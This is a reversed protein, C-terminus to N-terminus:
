QTACEPASCHPLNRASEPRPAGEWLVLGVDEGYYHMWESFRYWQGDWARRLLPGPPRLRLVAWAPLWGHRIARTPDPSLRPDECALFCYLWGSDETRPDGVHMVRLIDHPGPILYGYESSQIEPDRPWFRPCRVLHGPHLMRHESGTDACTLPPPSAAAWCCASFCRLCSAFQSASGAPGSAGCRM